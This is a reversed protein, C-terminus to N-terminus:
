KVPKIEKPNYNITQSKLAQKLSMDMNKELQENLDASLGLKNKLSLPNEVQGEIMKEIGPIKKYEPDQVVLMKLRNLNGSVEERAAADWINKGSFGKLNKVISKIENTNAIKTNLEKAVAPDAAMLKKNEGSNVVHKALEPNAAVIANMEQASKEGGQFAMASAQTALLKASNANSETIAKGIEISMQAAKQKAEPSLNQAMLSDVKGKAVAAMQAFTMQEAAMMNNTKQFNLSILNKKGEINSKQADIDNAIAQNITKLALNEGGTAGSSFGGLALGIAAAIKNGTGMNEFYHNPNVKQTAVDAILRDTEKNAEAMRSQFDKMGNQLDTTVKNYTAALKPVIQQTEDLAQQNLSQAQQFADPKAPGQVPKQAVEQAPMPKADFAQPPTEPAPKPTVQSVPAEAEKKSTQSKPSIFGSAFDSAVDGVGKGITKVLDMGQSAVQGLPGMDDLTLGSVANRLGSGAQNALSAEEIPQSSVAEMGNVVGGSDYGKVMGGCSYGESKELGTIKQITLPDLGRKAIRLETGDPHSVVFHDGNDASLLHKKTDEKAM